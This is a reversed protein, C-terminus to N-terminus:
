SRAWGCKKVDDFQRMFSRLSPLLTPYNELGYGTGIFPNISGSVHDLGEVASYRRFSPLSCNMCLELDSVPWEM